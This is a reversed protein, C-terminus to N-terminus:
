QSSPASATGGLKAKMTGARTTADPAFFVREQVRRYPAPAVDSLPHHGDSTGGSRVM